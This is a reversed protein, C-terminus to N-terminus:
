SAGRKAAEAVDAAEAAERAGAARNRCAEASFSDGRREAREAARECREIEEQARMSAIINERTDTTRSIM